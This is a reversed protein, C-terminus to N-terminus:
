DDENNQGNGQIFVIDDERYVELDVSNFWGGPKDTVVVEAGAPMEMLKAMLEFVKM